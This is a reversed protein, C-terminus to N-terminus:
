NKQQQQEAMKAFNDTLRQLEVIVYFKEYKKM